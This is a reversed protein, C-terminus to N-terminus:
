DALVEEILQTSTRDSTLRGLHGQGIEALKSLRYQMRPELEGVALISLHIGKYAQAEVLAVLEESIDFEGDTVMLVCNNKGAEGQKSASAYAMQFGPLIVTQGQGVLENRVQLIKNRQNGSTPALIEKAQGSFTVISVYDQARLEGTLTALAERFLPLRGPAQMSSSVDVLFVLNQLEAGELTHAESSATAVAEPTDLLKLWPLTGAR